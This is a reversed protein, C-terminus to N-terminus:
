TQSASPFHVLLTFEWLDYDHLLAVHRSLALAWALWQTPDAYYLDPRMKDKDARLTLFNFALGRRAQKVLQVAVDICWSHWRAYPIDMRVNFIGSAVVYDFVGDIAAGQAFFAQKDRGHLKQAHEIMTASLDIGHYVCHRYGNKRLHSLLAGYGCGVDLLSIPTDRPLLREFQAFRLRQSVEDKWDVGQACPGYLRIKEEYYQAIKTAIDESM